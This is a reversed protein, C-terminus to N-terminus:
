IKQIPLGTDVTDVSLQILPHVLARRYYKESEASICM